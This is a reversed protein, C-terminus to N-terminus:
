VTNQGGPGVTPQDESSPPVNLIRRCRNIKHNAIKPRNDVMSLGVATTAWRQAGTRITDLSPRVITEGNQVMPPVYSLTKRSSNHFAATITDVSFSNSTLPVNGVYIASDKAVVPAAVPATAAPPRSVQQQIHTDAAPVTIVAPAAPTPGGIIASAGVTSGGIVAPSAPTMGDGATGIGIVGKGKAVEKGTLSDVAPGREVTAGSTPQAALTEYSSVRTQMFRQRAEVGRPPPAEGGVDSEVEGAGDGTQAAGANQTLLLPAPIALEGAPLLTRLARRPARVPQPFPTPRRTAVPKLGLDPTSTGGDGFKEVWRSKLAELAAM